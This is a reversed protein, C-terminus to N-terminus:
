RSRVRSPMARCGLCRDLHAELRENLALRGSALGQILAIRGRPSEGEDRSLQYTPCHPLCMGCMVCRDTAKLLNM